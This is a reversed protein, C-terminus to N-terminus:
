KNLNGISYPNSAKHSSWEILQGSSYRTIFSTYITKVNPSSNAMLVKLTEGVWKKCDVLSMGKGGHAESWAIRRYCFAYYDADHDPREKWDQVTFYYNRPNARVAETKMNFSDLYRKTKWAIFIKNAKASDSELSWLKLFTPQAWSFFCQQFVESSGVKSDFVDKLMMGIESFGLDRTKYQNPLEMKLSDTLIACGTPAPKTQAQGNVALVFSACALALSVVKRM